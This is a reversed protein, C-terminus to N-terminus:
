FCGLFLIQSVLELSGCPILKIKDRNNSFNARANDNAHSRRLRAALATHYDSNSSDSGSSSSNLSVFGSSESSSAM